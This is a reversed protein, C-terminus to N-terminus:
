YLELHYSTKCQNTMRPELGQGALTLLCMLNFANQLCVDKSASVSTSEPVFNATYIVHVKLTMDVHTGNVNM